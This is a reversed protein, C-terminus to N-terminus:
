LRLCKRSSICGLGEKGVMTALKGMGTVNSFCCKLFHIISDLICLIVVLVEHFQTVPYCLYMFRKLRLVTHMYLYNLNQWTEFRKGWPMVVQLNSKQETKDKTQLAVHVVISNVSPLKRCNHSEEISPYTFM